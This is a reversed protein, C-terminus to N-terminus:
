DDSIEVKKAFCIGGRPDLDCVSIIGKEVGPDTTATFTFGTAEGFENTYADGAITGGFTNTLDAVIHHGGLPNGYRDKIIVVVPVTFGPPITAEVDIECNKSYTTGTLFNVNVWASVFGSKATLVNVAGIGDDLNPNPVSYDQQLVQSLLETEYLSAYCGDRTAGSLVSGFTTKMEVPTQDLVFNDNVDLVEVMVDGKSIGDALLNLPYYLFAVSAPPGSVILITTDAVVGDAGWTEAWIHALGDNRPDGSLYTTYACGQATKDCCYVMGEETGFHVSTSDPVPNGYVDVVCACIIAEVCDKDWGRINCPLVGLSIDAPPGACVTVISSYSLVAGVKARLRVAGSITGSSLTVTAEGYADTKVTISDQAVGNLSEGGGPGNIIYFEVSWDAGVRNGNDDYCIARIQTAEMGGTGRVQIRPNNPMLVIYAVTDTPVLLLSADEQLVNGDPESTVKLYATGTRVGAIYTVEVEGDQTLVYSPIFGMSNWRGDQNVDYKLMDIGETFYGDGDTDDFKEGAAFKVITGDEALNGTTDTVTVKVTSMSIGDAPLWAPTVEIDLPKIAGGSTVVKIQVSGSAVGPVNVQITATGFDTPTFISAASGNADTTDVSPTCYGVAAPTVSFSVQVGSVPRDADDEVVVNVVGTQGKQIEDSPAISLSKILVVTESDKTSKESCGMMMMSISLLILTSWGFVGSFSFCKRTM